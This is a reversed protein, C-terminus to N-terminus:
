PLLRNKKEEETKLIILKRASAHIHIQKDVFVPFFNNPLRFVLIPRNYHTIQIHQSTLKTQHTLVSFGIKEDKKIKTSDYTETEDIM